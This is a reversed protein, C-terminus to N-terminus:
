RAKEGIITVLYCAFDGIEKRDDGLQKRWLIDQGEKTLERTIINCYDIFVNHARTREDDIEFRGELDSVYWSVRLNVYRMAKLIFQNLLAKNRLKLIEEVAIQSKKFNMDSKVKLYM